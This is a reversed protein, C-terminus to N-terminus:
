RLSKIAERLTKGWYRPNTERNSSPDHEEIIALVREKWYTDRSAVIANKYANLENHLTRSWGSEKNLFIDTVKMSIESPFDEVETDPTNMARSIKFKTFEDENMVKSDVAGLILYGYKHKGFWDDFACVQIEKGTKRDKLNIIYNSM